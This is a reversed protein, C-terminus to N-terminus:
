KSATKQLDYLKLNKEIADKKSKDTKGNAGLDTRRSMQLLIAKHNHIENKLRLYETIQILHNGKATKINRLTKDKAKVQPINNRVEQIDHLQLPFVSPLDSYLAFIKNCDSVADDFLYYLDHMFRYFPSPEIEGCFQTNENEFNQIMARLFSTTRYDELYLVSIRLEKLFGECRSKEGNFTIKIFKNIEDFAGFKKIFEMREKIAEYNEFYAMEMQPSEFFRFSFKQKDTLFKFSDFWYTLIESFHLDQKTSITSDQM